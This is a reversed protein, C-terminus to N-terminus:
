LLVPQSPIPMHQLFVASIPHCFTHVILHLAGSWSTSWVRHPSLSHLFIALCTIQVPLISHIAASPLLQYLSSSSWSPPHTTTSAWGPLGPCVAMFRNNNYQQVSCYTVSSVWLPQTSNVTFALWWRGSNEWSGSGGACCLVAEADACTSMVAVAPSAEWARRWGSWLWPKGTCLRTCTLIMHFKRDWTDRLLIKDFVCCTFYLLLVVTM